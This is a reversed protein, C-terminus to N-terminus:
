AEDAEVIRGPVYHPFERLSPSSDPQTDPFGRRWSLGGINLDPTPPPKKPNGRKGKRALNVALSEAGFSARARTPILEGVRSAVNRQPSTLRWIHLPLSGVAIQFVILVEAGSLPIALLGPVILPM